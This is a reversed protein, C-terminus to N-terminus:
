TPVPPIEKIRALALAFLEQLPYGSPMSLRVRRVSTTIRAGIKLLKLRITGAQAKALATGHLGVRRVTTILMYAITSLYLRLQNSATMHASMRDAFMDAQHEKIRNEMDGRACYVKEYLEAAAIEDRGLNTVVFRPNAGKGLHEAKAVVRRECSWSDRTRYEFETFVRSAHGTEAHTTKAQELEKKILEKLRENKAFGVVYFVNNAECWALLADRCFGSDARIIIRTQPWRKRIQAVIRPLENEWGAAADINSPRLRACLIHDGCTIYLPLYCYHGYYGQFFKGEQDGYIASDTADLDLTIEKPIERHSRLFHDVFLKDVGDADCTIKHYRAKVGPQEMRQITSKGAATDMDARGSVLAMLPDNRLEDHDNIDEYGLAIAMVRQSILALLDHSVYRQDRGDCFCAAFAALLNTRGSAERLLLAGADSTMTGGDFKACVRRSDLGQFELEPQQCDTKM